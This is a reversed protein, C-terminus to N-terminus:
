KALLNQKFFSWNNLSMDKSLNSFSLDFDKKFRWGSVNCPLIKKWSQESSLCSNGSLVTILLSHDSHPFIETSSSTTLSNLISTLFIYDIRSSSSVQGGVSHHRTMPPYRDQCTLASDMLGYWSQLQGFEMHGHPPRSTNPIHDTLPNTWCNFDGAWIMESNTSTISTCQEFFLLKESSCSAPAYVCFVSINESNWNLSISLVRNNLFSQPNAPSLSSNKVIIGCHSNWVSFYQSFLQKFKLQLQPTSTHTEQLLLVDLPLRLLYGIKNVNTSSGTILGQM